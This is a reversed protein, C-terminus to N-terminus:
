RERIRRTKMRERKKDVLRTSKIMQWLVKPSTPLSLLLSQSDALLYQSWLMGIHCHAEVIQCNEVLIL